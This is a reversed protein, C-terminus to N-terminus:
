SGRTGPRQCFRSAKDGKECNGGNLQQWVVFKNPLFHNRPDPSAPTSAPLHGSSSVRAVPPSAPTLTEAITQGAGHQNLSSVSHVQVSFPVEYPWLLGVIAEVFTAEPATWSNISSARCLVRSPALKFLTNGHQPGNALPLTNTAINIIIRAALLSQDPYTQTPSCLFLATIHCNSAAVVAAVAASSVWLANVDTTDTANTAEASAQQLERQHAGIAGVTPWQHLPIAIM